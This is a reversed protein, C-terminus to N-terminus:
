AGLPPLSRLHSEQGPSKGGGRWEIREELVGVVDLRMRGEEVRGEAGAM